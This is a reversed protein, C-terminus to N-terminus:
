NILLVLVWLIGANMWNVGVKAEVRWTGSGEGRDFKRIKPKEKCFDTENFGRELRYGDYVPVKRINLSMVNTMFKNETACANAKCLNGNNASKCSESWDISVDRPSNYSTKWPECSKINNM